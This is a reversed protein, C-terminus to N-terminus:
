AVKEEEEHIVDVVEQSFASLAVDDNDELPVELSTTEIKKVPQVLNLPKEYKDLVNSDIANTQSPDSSFSHKSLVGILSKLSILFM